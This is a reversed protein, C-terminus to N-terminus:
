GLGLQALVARALASIDHRGIWALSALGAGLALNIVTRHQIWIGRVKTNVFSRLGERLMRRESLPPLQHEYLPMAALVSASRQKSREFAVRLVKAATSNIQDRDFEIDFVIPAPTDEGSDDRIQTQRHRVNASRLVDAFDGTSAAEGSRTFRLMLRVGQVEDGDYEDRIGKIRATWFKTRKDSLALKDDVASKDVIKRVVFFSTQNRPETPDFDDMEPDIIVYDPSRMAVGLPMVVGYLKNGAQDASMTSQFTTRGHEPDFFAATQRSNNLTGRALRAMERHPEVQQLSGKVDVGSGRLSDLKSKCRRLADPGAFVTDIRERIMYQSPTDLQMGMRQDFRGEPTGAGQGWRAVDDGETGFRPRHANLISSLSSGPHSTQVVDLLQPEYVALCFGDDACVQDVAVLAFLNSITNLTEIDYGLKPAYFPVLAVDANSDNVAMLAQEKTFLPKYEPTKLDFHSPPPDHRNGAGQNTGGLRLGSFKAHTGAWEGADRLLHRRADKFGQVYKDAATYGFGFEEGTFAIRVRKKGLNRQSNNMGPVGDAM